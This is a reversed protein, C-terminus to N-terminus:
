QPVGGFTANGPWLSASTMNLLGILRDAMRKALRTGCDLLALMTSKIGAAVAQEILTSGKRSRLQRLQSM